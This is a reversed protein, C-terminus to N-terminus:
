ARGADHAAEAGQPQAEAATSPHSPPANPEDTSDGQYSGPYSSLLQNFRRLDPRPVHVIPHCRPNDNGAGSPAGSRAGDAGTTAGNEVAGPIAAKEVHAGPNLAEGADPASGGRFASVAESERAPPRETKSPASEATGATGAIEDAKAQILDSRLHERHWLRRVAEAIRDSSHTTLMQLVRIYQRIGANPGHEREMRHRLENFIPPLKWDRFVNSHDLAHPRVSLAAVYHLPEVIWRDKEYSRRHTAILKDSQLIQVRDVYGKVAVTLFAAWKPVSYRNHEFTATQYKDVLVSRSICPDFRHKPLEIGHRKDLEFREGITQTQGSVKRTLESQCFSLLHANLEDDDKVRPVPTCARRQLAKVSSEADPKEQGRAPMCARPDFRYHSALAAYDDNLVRERGRLVTTAITKPNDWWVETAVGGFHEFATTMGHLVSETRQNPTAIMFVAHSFSWTVILVDKVRRGGPYDVSIQGFDCEIREGPSHDLPVLTPRHDRAHKKVYRRVQDYKGRYGDDSVLRRFLQMATHRQKPPETEDSLLIADIRAVFAGLKPHTSPKSRRYGDPIGTESGIATAVTAQSHHLRRAISRKSEQKQHAIRIALYHHVNLM